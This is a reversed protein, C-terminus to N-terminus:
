KEVTKAIKKTDKAVEKVIINQKPLHSQAEELYNKAQKKASSLAVKIKKQNKKDKLANTAAVMGAGVVAGAVAVSALTTNFQQKSKKKGLMM